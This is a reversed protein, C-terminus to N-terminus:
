ARYWNDYTRKFVREQPRSQESTECLPAMWKLRVTLSGMDLFGDRSGRSRSSVSMSTHTSAPKINLTVTSTGPEEPLGVSAVGLVELTHGEGNCIRFRLEDGKPPGDGFFSMSFSCQDM